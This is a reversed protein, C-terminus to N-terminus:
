IWLATSAPMRYRDRRGSCIQWVQTNYRFSFFSDMFKEKDQYGM